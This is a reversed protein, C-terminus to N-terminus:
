QSVKVQARQSLSTRSDLGAVSVTLEKSNM